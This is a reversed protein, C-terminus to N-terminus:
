YPRRFRKWAHAARDINLNKLLYPYVKHQPHPQITEPKPYIAELGMLRILYQVKKRNIKYGLRHLHNRMSRSIWLPKKLYQEDILLTADTSSGSGQIARALILLLVPQYEVAPISAHCNRIM